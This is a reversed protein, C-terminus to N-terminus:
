RTDGMVPSSFRILAIRVKLLLGASTEVGYLRRLNKPMSSPSRSLELLTTELDASQVNAKNLQLAAAECQQGVSSGRKRQIAATSTQCETLCETFWATPVAWISRM